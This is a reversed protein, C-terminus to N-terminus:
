GWVCAQFPSVLPLSLCSLDRSSCNPLIWKENLRSGRLVRTHVVTVGQLYITDSGFFGHSMIMIWTIFIIPGYGRTFHMAHIRDHPRPGTICTMDRRTSKIWLLPQWCGAFGRKKNALRFWTGRWPQRLEELAELLLGEEFKFHQLQSYAVIHDQWHNKEM